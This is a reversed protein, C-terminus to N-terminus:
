IVKGGHKHDRTKNYDIKERIVKDIDWNNFDCYDLCRIIVDAIESLEGCPKQHLVIDGKYWIDGECNRVCETAESVESHILAHIELKSPPNDYWGKEKANDHIEKALNNLM